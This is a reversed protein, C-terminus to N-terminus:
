LYYNNERLIFTVKDFNDLSLPHITIAQKLYHIFYSNNEKIFNDYNYNYGSFIHAGVKIVNTNIKKQLYYSIAVDCAPIYHKYNYEKCMKEWESNMDILYPYLKNLTNKTIIFGAGGDHYYFYRHIFNIHYSGYGGIYLNNNHDYDQIFRLMKPINIYTDTGCVYVFKYNYNDNIYKLGFSQKYSASLYDNNVGSLHIFEEGILDTKEEGLFFLLKVTDYTKALAGWTENIKIIQQKYKDITDCGFVCIILDYECKSM